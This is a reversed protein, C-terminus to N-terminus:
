NMLHIVEAVAISITIAILLVSMTFARWAERTLFWSMARREFGGAARSARRDARAERVDGVAVMTMTVSLPVLVVVFLIVYVAVKM